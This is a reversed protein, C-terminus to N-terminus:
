NTQDTDHRLDSAAGTQALRKLDRVLSIQVEPPYSSFRDGLSPGCTKKLIAGYCQWGDPFTLQPNRSQQLEFVRLHIPSFVGYLNRFLVTDAM